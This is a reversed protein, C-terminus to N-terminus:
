WDPIGGLVNMKWLEGLSYDELWDRLTEPALREFVSAGERRSVVVIDEPDLESVLDASQTSVILQKEESAQQLLTALITVAYPHLGLEPEDIIIVDPQLQPPQLLLTTLCIFRLTGDSFQIPGRVADPDGTEFWELELRLGQERRYVLSEVFPAALRVTDVIQKFDDPFQERLRRLLPALNSADPKLMINDRVAHSQRMASRVGTDNFHYVRWGRIARRAYWAFTDEDTVDPLLAEYHGAGLHRRPSSREGFFRTAEDLFFLRDRSGPHLSFEYGNQGFVLEVDIHPTGWRGGFMLADPGGNEAVFVGLRRRVVAALMDFLSIFNSKGAGNAGVLVNLRGLEFDKLERISKFGRVTISELM